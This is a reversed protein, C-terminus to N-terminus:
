KPTLMKLQKRDALITESGKGQTQKGKPFIGNELDNIVKQRGKLLIIRKYSNSRKKKKSQNKLSRLSKLFIM